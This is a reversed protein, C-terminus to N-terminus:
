SMQRIVGMMPSMTAIILFGIIIGIILMMCPQLTEMIFNLAGENNQECIWASWNLMKAMESSEEGATIFQLIMPPFFGSAEFAERLSVGEIVRETVMSLESELRVLNVSQRALELGDVIPMGSECTIALARTFYTLQTTRYFRGVGPILLLCDQIYMRSYSDEWMRRVFTHGFLLIIIVSFPFFPSRMFSSAEILLRTPLPLPVTLSTLFDCIGKLFFAPGVILFILCIAMVFAPYSIASRLKLAQSHAKEAHDAISELVMALKGTREGVEILKVYLKPFIGPFESMASSISDGAEIRSYISQFAEKLRISSVQTSIIRFARSFPINVKYMIALQRLCAILDLSTASRGFYRERLEQLRHAM